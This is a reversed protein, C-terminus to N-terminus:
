RKWFWDGYKHLQQLLQQKHESILFDNWPIQFLHRHTHVFIRTHPNKRVVKLRKIKRVKFAQKHGHVVWILKVAIYQKVNPAHKTSWGMIIIGRILYHMFQKVITHSNTQSPKRPNSRCTRFWCLYAWLNVNASIHLTYFPAPQLAKWFNSKM